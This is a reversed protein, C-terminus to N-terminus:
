DFIDADADASMPPVIRDYESRVAPKDLQRVRVSPSAAVWKARVDPTDVAVGAAVCALWIEVDPFEASATGHGDRFTALGATIAIGRKLIAGLRERAPTGAKKAGGDNAWQKLGYLAVRRYAPTGEAPLTIDGLRTDTVPNHISWGTGDALTKFKFERQAM